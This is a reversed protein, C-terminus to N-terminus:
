LMARTCFLSSQPLKLFLYLVCNLPYLGPKSVGVYVSCRQLLTKRYDNGKIVLIRVSTWLSNNFLQPPQKLPRFLGLESRMFAENRKGERLYKINQDNIWMFKCSSRWLCFSFSSYSFNFCLIAMPCFDCPSTMSDFKRSRSRLGAVITLRKGQRKKLTGLWRRDPWLRADRETPPVTKKRELM